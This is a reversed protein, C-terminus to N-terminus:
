RLLEELNKMRNLLSETMYLKVKISIASKSDSNPEINAKCFEELEILSQKFDKWIKEYTIKSPESKVNYTEEQLTNANYVKIQKDM